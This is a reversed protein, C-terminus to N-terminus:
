RNIVHQQQREAFALTRYRSLRLTASWYDSPLGAKRKLAAVFGAPDPIQEWVKPLFTARKPGEELLLGDVLPELQLLLEAEDRVDVVSMPSLVSVEISIQELETEDLRPFRIDKFAANFAAIAVDQALPRQAELSGICGRLAGDKSLTVFSAGPRALPGDFESAGVPRPQGRSLGYAISQRALNLLRHQEGPGLDAFYSAAM